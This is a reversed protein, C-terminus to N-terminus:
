ASSSEALNAFGRPALPWALCFDCQCGDTRREDQLLEVAAGCEPCATAETRPPVYDPGTGCTQCVSPLM